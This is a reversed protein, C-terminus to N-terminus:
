ALVAKSHHSERIPVFRIEVRKDLAMAIRNLMALSYREYDANELRCIVSATTGILKAFARQSLGAKMRLNYIKRAIANDARIKELEDIREPNGAIFRRHMIEVADVTEDREKYFVVKTQM